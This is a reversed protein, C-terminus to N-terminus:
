YRSVVENFDQPVCEKARDSATDLRAVEVCDQNMETNGSRSSKRWITM